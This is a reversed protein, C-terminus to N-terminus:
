DYVTFGFDNCPTYSGSKTLNKEFFHYLKYDSPKMCAEGCHQKGLIGSAISWYKEEGAVSCKGVCCKGDGLLSPKTFIAVDQCWQKGMVKPSCQHKTGASTTYGAESCSGATFGGFKEPFGASKAPLSMEGCQGSAPWNLKHITVNGDLTSDESPKNYLDLTMKVPGFGHTPTSDYVTFGFDSCPTDSDSKTLNKEFFHYLKYDSPKMCAEGCHQKGLIGSAISWYKEEGAVSCKGVCCKGDGLTSDEVVARIPSAHVVALVALGALISKFMNNSQNGM